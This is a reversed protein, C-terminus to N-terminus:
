GLPLLMAQLWVRIGFPYGLLNFVVQVGLLLLLYTSSQINPQMLLFFLTVLAPPPSGQQATTIFHVRGRHPGAAILWFSKLVLSVMCSCSALGTFGGILTRPISM